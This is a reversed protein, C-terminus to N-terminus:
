KNVKLNRLKSLLENTFSRYAKAGSSNPAYDLINCRNSISEPLKTNKPIITKFLIKSYSQTIDDKKSKMDKTHEFRTILLGRLCVNQKLKERISRILNGITEIGKIAYDECMLPIVVDNSAVLANITLLGFSPGCDILIYDYENIVSELLGKLIYERGMLSSLEIEALALDLSSPVLHLNESTEIIPLPTNHILSQYVNQSDNMEIDVTPLSLTLNCQPDMDILLVKYGDKALCGGVCVTTTTKAVGGKHNAFSIVRATKM